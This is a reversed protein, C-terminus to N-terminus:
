DVDALDQDDADVTIEMSPMTDDRAHADVFQDLTQFWGIVSQRQLSTPIASSLAHYSSYPWERFDHVFGHREPNHHIYVILRQLYEETTVEIRRFPRQFLADTRRYVKNFARAYANFLNSFARSPTKPSSDRTRILLHLHNRLLCYTYTEAVPAIHWRYLGLFYYYNREERFLDARNNGRTYFHYYAGNRLPEM